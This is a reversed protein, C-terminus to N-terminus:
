KYEAIFQALKAYIGGNLKCLEVFNQTNSVVFEPTKLANIQNRIQYLSKFLHFSNTTFHYFAQM